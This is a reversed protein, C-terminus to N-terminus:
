EEKKLERPMQSVAYLLFLAVILMALAWMNNHEYMFYVAVFMVMCSFVQFNFLRKGRVSKGPYPTKITVVTFTIVSLAMIWTAIDPQIFYLM